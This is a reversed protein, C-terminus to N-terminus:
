SSIEKVRNGSDDAWKAVVQDEFRLDLYKLKEVGGSAVFNNWFNELTLLKREINGRGLVIPVGADASYLIIDSGNNMNIESIMHYIVTDLSQATRCVELAEFIDKNTITKGVPANQLGEIGSIVPLDLKQQSGIGPLMVGDADVYRLQGCSISAVPERELIRIELRDPFQRSVGASKVFPQSLIRDRVASLDVAFMSASQPVKALACLEKASVTRAGEFVFRQVKLSSRWEISVILLAIMVVMLSALLLLGGRNIAGKRDVANHVQNNEM